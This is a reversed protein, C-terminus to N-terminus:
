RELKKVLMMEELVDEHKQWLYSGQFRPAFKLAVGKESSTTEGTENLILWNMSIESITSGAMVKLQPNKKPRKAIIM